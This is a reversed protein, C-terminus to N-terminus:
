YPIFPNTRGLSDAVVPVAGYVTLSKYFESEIVSFSFNPLAIVKTELSTLPPAAELVPTELSLSAGRYFFFYYGAVLLAIAIVIFLYPFYSREKPGQPRFAGFTGSSPSPVTIM